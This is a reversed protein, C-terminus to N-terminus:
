KGNLKIWREHAEKAQAKTLKDPDLRNLQELSMSAISSVPNPALDAPLPPLTARGSLVKHRVSFALKTAREIESLASIIQGKDGSSAAIRDIQLQVDEKALKGGPDAARALTYALNVANSRFARSEAAAGGFQTLNYNATELLPADNNGMAKAAQVLTGAASSLAMIGTSFIGTFTQGSNLQERMRKVEALTTRTAIEAESYEAIEKNQLGFTDSPNTSQASANYKVGGKNLVEQLSEANNVDITQSKKTDPFFFTALSPTKEKEPAPILGQGQAAQNLTVGTLSTLAESEGKATAAEDQTPTSELAAELLAIGQGRIDLKGDTAKMLAFSNGQISERIQNIRKVSISDRNPANKVM